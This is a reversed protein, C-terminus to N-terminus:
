EEEHIDWKDPQAGSRLQFNYEEDSMDTVATDAKEEAEEESNAEVTVEIATDVHQICQYKTM